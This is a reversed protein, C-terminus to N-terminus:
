KRRRASERTEEALRKMIECIDPMRKKLNLPRRSEEDIFCHESRGQALLIDEGALYISYEYAARAGNFFVLRTAIEISDGFHPARKYECSVQTVPMLIKQKEIEAYDVGRRRMYDLRAEEMWRIYNSHHVIGMRDTEYYHVPRIYTESRNM